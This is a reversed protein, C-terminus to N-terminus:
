KEGLLMSKCIWVGFFMGFLISLLGPIGLYLLPREKVKLRVISGVVELGHALPNKKSTEVNEIGYKCSCPVECIRLGNRKAEFLIEVSASMGSEFVRLRSLARRSYARFGSQADSVEMKSSREVMETILKVGFQRYRPMEDIGQGDAFRSGIVMDAENQVIPRIIGDMESPDHQGDGDLTVLVDAGLVLARSFLSGIAAGYGYNKVHVIVDAGLRKATVATLDSSGDDCVVVVDAYKMSEKVMRAITREENFAPIGVVVFPAFLASADIKPTTCNNAGYELM